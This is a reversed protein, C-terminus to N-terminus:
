TTTRRKVEVHVLVIQVQHARFLALKVHTGLRVRAREQVRVLCMLHCDVPNGPVVVM